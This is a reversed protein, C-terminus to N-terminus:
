VDTCHPTPYSGAAAAAPQKGPTGAVVTVNVNVATAAATACNNDSSSGRSNKRERAKHFINGLFSSQHQLGRPVKGAATAAMAPQQQHHHHHPQLNKPSSDRSMTSNTTSSQFSISMGSDLSGVSGRRQYREVPDHIDLLSNSLTTRKLTAETRGGGSERIVVSRQQVSSNSTRRSLPTTTSSSTEELTTVSGNHDMDAVGSDRNDRGSALLNSSSAGNGMGPPPQISTPTTPARSIRAATRQKDLEGEIRLNEMEDMELIAERLDECFKARDHDNRANFMILTRGDVRQSLRIGFPYHHSEFYSVNLGALQFSQRFSYTVGNKKKSFIKTVVLIDNFLFVERQHLGARERRGADAVEYLRCYCVLRRHPLVLNPKKGVISQQVKLVQTVHDAGPKFEAAKVREYIGVLIEQDVNAGEDIGRLNKIFDELKMRKDAKISPTHLDTNLMIVAFALIFVTDPNRLRAVVQPNCQCYRQGFVEMLREIKQAEGPMRFYTQFRRLAVDVDLAAFDLEEIFFDLAAMNFANQLNGLYEGIMQKSVGKRSIFFKAVARPSAELFGKQTLYAVGREPKKNFLNLGVRYQRKRISELVKAQAPTTPQGGSSSNTPYAAATAASPLQAVPGGNATLRHDYQGHLVPPFPVPSSHTTHGSSSSSSTVPHNQHGTGGSESWFINSYGAGELSDESTSHEASLNSTRREGAPDVAMLAAVGSYGPLNPTQSRQQQQQRPHSSSEVLLGAASPGASGLSGQSSNVSPSKTSLASSTRRPVEPPVRKSSASGPGTSSKSDSRRFEHSNNGLPTQQQQPQGQGAGGGNHNAQSAHVVHHHSGYPSHSLSPIPGGVAVGNALTTPPPPSTAAQQYHAHHYQSLDFSHQHQYAYHHGSGSSSGTQQQLHNLHHNHHHHYFHQHHHHQPSMRMQQVLQRQASSVSRTSSRVGEENLERVLSAFNTRIVYEARAVSDESSSSSNNPGAQQHGSSGDLPALGVTTSWTTSEVLENHLRRSLRRQDAKAMATITAFKRRMSYHRFSRQIVRAANNARGRGGYKRELLEIQKDLLDQSMEYVNMSRTRKVVDDGPGRVPLSKKMLASTSSSSTTSGHSIAMQQQQPSLLQQASQQHLRSRVHLLCQGNSSSNAYNGDGGSVVMEATRMENVMMM